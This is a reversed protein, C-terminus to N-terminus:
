TPATAKQQFRRMILWQQLISICNNVLWYLVLGAPFTLFLFTFLLPLLMMVKAQMPDAPQPSLRQQWLMTLGMLIPLVYYPDKGSLDYIWAMFPAHRLQVSEILVYYLAIFFPFQVLTPLCGGLPNMKEHKYFELTAASLKKRDDGYQQKLQELKPQLARMKAMSRYSTESLKFFVARICLTVLIISVGWNGVWQNIHKLLWFIVVSIMWLWGYDITLNLGKALPALNAQIEPGVYLKSNVQRTQGPQVTFSPAVFGLIYQEGTTFQSYYRNAQVQKQDAIWATLFYPQQMALWGGRTIRNLNNSELHSFTLKKYPKKETYISAGNYNRIGLLSHKSGSHNDKQRLLQAYFYGKWPTSANNKVQYRVDIDYRGRHFTFVKYLTLGEPSQWIFTLQQGEASPIRTQLQYMLSQDTQHLGLRGVLASEAVYRQDQRDHLIPQPQHGKVTKTYQLLDARVVRGGKPDIAVSLTDTKVWVYSSAPNVTVHPANPAAQTTTSSVTPGPIGEKKPQQKVAHTSMFPLKFPLLQKNPHEAQWVYWLSLGLGLWLLVTLRNRM